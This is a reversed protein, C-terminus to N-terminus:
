EAGDQVALMIQNSYPNADLTMSNATSAVFAPLPITAPASWSTGNWTRYAVGDNGVSVGGVSRGSNSEFAVDISPNNTNGPVNTQALTAAGWGSGDWVRMWVDATGAAGTGNSKAALVIRNSEPDAAINPGAPTVTPAQQRPSPASSTWGHGGSYTYYGV